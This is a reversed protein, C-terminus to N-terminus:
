TTFVKDVLAVQKAPDVRPMQRWEVIETHWVIDVIRLYWPPRPLEIWGCKVGGQRGFRPRQIRQLLMALACATGRDAKAARHAVGVIHRIVEARGPQLGNGDVRAM